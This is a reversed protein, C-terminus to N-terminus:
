QMDEEPGDAGVGLVPVTVTVEDAQDFRLTVPFRAGETLRESLGMLMLHTGGPALVVREGAPLSLADLHVMRNVDDNFETTHITVQDAVPSEVSLLRDDRASEITLYVAGPRSALITARSWPEVIRVTEDAMASVPPLALVAVILLATRM